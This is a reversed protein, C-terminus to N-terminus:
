PNYINNNWNIVGYKKRGLEHLESTIKHTYDSIPNENELICLANIHAIAQTLRANGVLKAYTTRLDQNDNRNIADLISKKYNILNM